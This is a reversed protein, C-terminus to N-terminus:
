SSSSFVDLAMPKLDGTGVLSRVLPEYLDMRAYRSDPKGGTHLLFSLDKLGAVYEPVGVSRYHPAGRHGGAILGEHDRIERQLRALVDVLRLGILSQVFAGIDYEM